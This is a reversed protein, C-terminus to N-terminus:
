DASSRCLRVSNMYNLTTFASVKYTTPVGKMRGYLYKRGTTLNLDMVNTKSVNINICIILCVGLQLNVYFSRDPLLHGNKPVTEVSYITLATYYTTPSTSRLSQAEKGFSLNSIM